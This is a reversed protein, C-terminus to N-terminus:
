ATTVTRGARVTPPMTYRPWHTESKPRHRPRPDAAYGPIPRGQLCHYLARFGDGRSPPTNKLFTQYIDDETLVSDAKGSEFLERLASSVVEHGLARYMGTLFRHGVWYPCRPYEWMTELWGQVNAADYPTCYGPIYMHDLFYAIDIPFGDGTLRLTYSMLFDAAGESLWHPGGSFYFHALEHYTLKRITNKVVIHTHANWGLFEHDLDSEFELLAIVDPVPWPTGMFGEMSEVAFGMRELQGELDSEARGVAFLDVEGALPLSITESRVHADKLLDQFVEETANASELVVIVAAEEKTLGDQFWSQDLFQESRGPDSFLISRLSTLVAGILCGTQDPVTTVLVAIEPHTDALDRLDNMMSLDNEAVGDSLWPSGAVRQSMSPDIRAFARIQDMARREDGTVGDAVWPLNDIDFESVTAAAAASCNNTTDSEGSVSDVCAGYYYTGLAAPAYTLISEASSESAGLGSVQDTGVETDAPTVTSDTSRYYNLATGDSAGDGQNRVTVNLTLAQGAMPNSDSVTPADVVLDPPPPLVAVAVAESCNNTTDSEGPVPAVCAGYYYTGPASPAYILM